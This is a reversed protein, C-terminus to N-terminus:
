RETRINGDFEDMDSLGLMADILKDQNRLFLSWIDVTQMWMDNTILAKRQVSYWEPLRYIAGWVDRVTESIEHLKTRGGSVGQLATANWCRRASQEVIAAVDGESVSGIAGM